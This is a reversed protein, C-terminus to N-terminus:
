MSHVTSTTTVSSTDIRMVDWWYTQHTPVLRRPTTYKKFQRHCDDQFEKFTSLMQYEIFRNMAQDNFDFVFFWQLNAKVVEIYEKKTNLSIAMLICANTAVYCELELLRSQARRRPTLTAPPQSSSKSSCLTLRSSIIAHTHRCSLADDIFDNTVHHMVLREVITPDIDTKYLTDDEIHDDVRYSVVIELVNTSM